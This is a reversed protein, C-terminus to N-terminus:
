RHTAPWVYEVGGVISRGPMVVGTVEQYSTNSINALQLYPRISGTARTASVDWLAYTDRGFRQLAGVRTRASIGGPLRGTWGFIANHVPYNFAYKSQLGPLPQVSGQMGTYSWDLINHHWDWRVGTEVGTFNLQQVNTAQWLDTPSSRVYDIGNHDRRHFVTVQAKWRSAIHYDAGGEYSWATEPRLNPNGRNAPDFYYLDTYTPLRFARSVAGRLKLRSNLWYGTSFSPSWEGPMGHYVEDRVGISFSMRRLVRVDLSAYVAGRARSHIGLNGSDISEGFGEAGYYLTVNQSLPERRRLSGHWSESIHRNTFASPRDRYLVFLDNHRRYSFDAETKEGFSERMGAFWTMTREWSPYNGYFQDAGFPKDAYYLDVGGAGLASKWSTASGFMLNRYDRDPRFGSSFSRSFSLQETLSRWVGSLSAAQENVGFNGAGARLRIEAAEPPAAILNVVGGVADSGYLTSGAGHLVEVQQIATLPVPLDANHHASQPDSMRRGNLLILTQGYTAGRISIDTQVGNPARSRVDLSPDTRLVDIVSPYLLTQGRMPLVNVSRDAEDLPLPEYVGTVVISEKQPAIPEAPDPSSQVQAGALTACLILLIPAAPRM